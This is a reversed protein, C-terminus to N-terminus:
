EASIILQELTDFKSLGPAEYPSPQGAPETTDDPLPVDATSELMEAVVLNETELETIFSALDQQVQESDIGHRSAVKDALGDMTSNSDLLLKWVFTGSGNLSYYCTTEGNLIVVVDDVERWAANDNNVM